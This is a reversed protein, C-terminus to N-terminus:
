LETISSGSLEMIAERRVKPSGFAASDKAHGIGPQGGHRTADGKGPPRRLPHTLAKGLMAAAGALLSNM